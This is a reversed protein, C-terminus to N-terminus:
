EIEARQELGQVVNRRHTGFVEDTNIAHGFRRVDVAVIASKKRKRVRDTEGNLDFLRSSASFSKLCLVRRESMLRDHQLPFRTTTDVERVPIAHEQDVQISPKWRDQLGDRDDPRLGKDTPMSGAEAPVPTPFRARKSASRPDGRVANIRCILASFGNHPAGRMWPSSSLSPKSTAWDLTAFYMTLRHPGGDWAHRVKRRLWAGSMPAMSRNTTGVM